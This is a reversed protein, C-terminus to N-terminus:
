TGRSRTRGLAIALDPGPFISATHGDAGMGLWVLDCPWGLAAVRADADRGAKKYDDLDVGEILDIVTAGTKAFAKAISAHNLLPSGAPALREDGPVLTVKSWDLKTKALAAFVPAPTSGGPVAILAKGRAAIAREIIFAVDAAVAPGMEAATEYDWWEAEIM